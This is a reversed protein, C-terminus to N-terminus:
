RRQQPAKLPRQGRICEVDLAKDLEELLVRWGGGIKVSPVSGNRMWRYMTMPHVRMYEAAEQTTMLKM